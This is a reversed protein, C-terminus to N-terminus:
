IIRKGELINSRSLGEKHLKTNLDISKKSEIFENKKKSDDFGPVIKNM